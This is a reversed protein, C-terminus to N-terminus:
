FCGSVPVCVLLYRKGKLTRTTKVRLKPNKTMRFEQIKKKNGKCMKM